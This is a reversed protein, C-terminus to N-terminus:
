IFRMASELISESSEKTPEAGDKKPEDKKKEEKKQLFSKIVGQSARAAEKIADVEVGVIQTLMGLASHTVKYRQQAMTAAKGKDEAKSGKDGEKFSSQARKIADLVRKFSDNIAKEQAEVETLNKGADEVFSFIEERSNASFDKIDSKEASGNRFAKHIEKLVDGMKESGLAKLIAEKEEKENFKEKSSRSALDAKQSDVTFKSLDFGVSDDIAKELIARKAKISDQGAKMTYHHGKYSFGNTPKKLFQDKYNEVLRKGSAFMIKLNEKVKGFWAKVKAWLDSIIKQIKAFSDKVFGEMLVEPDAAGELVSEEMIIDSVYMGAHLQFAEQTSEAVIEQIGTLGEGVYGQYAEVTIEPQATTRRTGFISM